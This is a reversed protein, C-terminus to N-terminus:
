LHKGLLKQISSLVEDRFDELKMEIGFYGVYSDRIQYGHKLWQEYLEVASLGTIRYNPEFVLHCITDNTSEGLKRHKTEVFPNGWKTPRGVYVTNPPM